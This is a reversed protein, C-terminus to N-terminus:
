VYVATSYTHHTPDRHLLTILWIFSIGCGYNILFSYVSQHHSCTAPTTPVSVIVHCVVVSCCVFNRSVSWQQAVRMVVVVLMYM